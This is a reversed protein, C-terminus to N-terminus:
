KQNAATQNSARFFKCAAVKLEDTGYLYLQSPSSAKKGNSDNYFLVQLEWIAKSPGSFGVHRIGILLPYTFIKTEDSGRIYLKEPYNGINLLVLGEDYDGNKPNKTAYWGRGKRKWGAMRNITIILEDITFNESNASNKLDIGMSGIPCKYQDSYKREPEFSNVITLEDDHLFRLTLSSKKDITLFTIEYENPIYSPDIESYNPNIQRISQIWFNIKVLNAAKTENFQHFTTTLQDFFEPGYIIKFLENSDGDRLYEYFKEADRYLDFYDKYLKNSRTTGSNIFPIGERFDITKPTSVLEDTFATIKIEENPNAKLLGTKVDLIWKKEVVKSLCKLYFNQVTIM